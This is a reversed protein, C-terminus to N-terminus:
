GTNQMLIALLARIPQIGAFKTHKSRRWWRETQPRASHERLAFVDGEAVGSSAWAIRTVPATEWAQVADADGWPLSLLAGLLEGQSILLGQAKLTLPAHLGVHLNFGRNQLGKCDQLAGEV